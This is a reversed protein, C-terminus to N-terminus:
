YLSDAAPTIILDIRRNQARSEETRNSAVPRSDGYGVARIRFGPILLEETLYRSVAQARQESLQQNREVNGQSDTHGEVILSCQPFVDIAANVKAMLPEFAPEFEASNSAFQLGVLRIIMRDGDRLVIAEDPDFTDAVQEFQERIRAQRAVKRVLAERDAAAGGLRADLERIEDELGRIALSQEANIERLELLERAYGTLEDRLAASGQSVDPELELVDAISLLASEWDLIIDEITLDKSRVQEVLSGVHIAHRAEYSAHRAREIAPVTAYRDAVLLQDAEALLQEARATTRPATKDTRESRALALAERAPGLYRTRIANLEAERFLAEAESARRQLYEVDKGKDFARLADAYESMASAFEQPSLTAADAAEAAVRAADLEAFIDADPAQAYMLMPLLCLLASIRQFRKATRPATIKTPGDARPKATRYTRIATPPAADVPRQNTRNSV